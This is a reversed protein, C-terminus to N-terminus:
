GRKRGRMLGLLGGFLSKRGNTLSATQLVFDTFSTSFLVSQGAKETIYGRRTLNESVYMYKKGVKQQAAIRFLNEREIERMREWVFEYHPTVEEAFATAVQAWEPEQREEIALQEFVISCAIQLFMPFRGALDIIQEAYAELPIGETQSPVNVLSVAEETRFPRLPQSSFINFFPSDAIDRNHCMSQLDANSSTVYAVRYSNALARLFSFFSEEFKENCTICEFEDMLVILRKGEDHIKLVVDKLHDLTKDTGDIKSNSKTEYWVGSFLTDIFTPVDIDATSQFDMYVFVANEYNQM